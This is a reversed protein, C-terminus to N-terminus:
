MINERGVIQERWASLILKFVDRTTVGPIRLLLKYTGDDPLEIFEIYNGISLLFEDMISIAIMEILEPPFDHLISGPILRHRKWCVLFAVIHDNYYNAETKYTRRSKM